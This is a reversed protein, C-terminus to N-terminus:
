SVPAVCSSIELILYELVKEQAIMTQATSACYDPFPGAGLSTGGPERTHYSSYLVKGCQNYDFTVTLPRDTGNTAGHIWTQSPYMTQDMATSSMLVWNYLLDQIQVAGNQSANAAMLWSALTPDAVTAPFDNTNKAIAAGHIPQAATMSGGGAYYIYPAFQPVQELYDYSWDTVYLRGGSNVYNYLNGTVTSPNALNDFTNNTCNIFILNYGAMKTPDDLLGEFEGNTAGGNDYLHVAGSGSPSTFEKDAIGISHLVCEIQDYDGVAVAMKPLDGEDQSRPLRSQDATLANDVCGLVDIHLIKRFRGKQVIVPVQQTVPVNELRFTGDVATNVTVVPAGGLPENCVECQVMPPFEPIATPVYVSADYVPDIGNPATVRGSITTSGGGPCSMQFCALGACGGSGGSTGGRMTGGGSTGGTTGSVGPRGADDSCGVLAALFVIAILRM